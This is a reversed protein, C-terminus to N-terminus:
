EHPLIPGQYPRKNLHERLLDSGRSLVHEVVERYSADRKLLKLANKLNNFVSRAGPSNAPFPALLCSVVSAALRLTRLEPRTLEHLSKGRLVGASFNTDEFLRMAMETLGANVCRREAMFAEAQEPILCLDDLAARITEMTLRPATPPTDPLSLTDPNPPAYSYATLPVMPLENRPSEPLAALEGMHEGTLTDVVYPLREVPNASALDGPMLRGLATPDQYPGPTETMRYVTVGRLPSADWWEPATDPIRVGCLLLADTGQKACELHVENLVRKLEALPQTPTFSELGAPKYGDEAGYRRNHLYVQGNSVYPLSGPYSRLVDLFQLAHKVEPAALFPLSTLPVRRMTGVAAAPRPVYDARRLEVPEAFDMPDAAAHAPLELQLAYGDQVDFLSLSHLEPHKGLVTELNQLAAYVPDAGAATGPLVHDRSFPLLYEHLSHREVPSYLQWGRTPSQLLNWYEQSAHHLPAEGSRRFSWTQEENQARDMGFAGNILRQVHADPLPAQAVFSRVENIQPSMERLQQAMDRNSWGVIRSKAPGQSLFYKHRIKQEPCFAAYNFWQKVSEPFDSEPLKVLFLTQTFNSMARATETQVLEHTSGEPLAHVDKAWNPGVADLFDVLRQTSVAGSRLMRKWYVFFREAAMRIPTSPAILDMDRAAEGARRYFSSEATGEWAHAGSATRTPLFGPQLYPASEVWRAGLEHMAVSCLYDYATYDPASPAALQSLDAVGEAAQAGWHQYVNEGMRLFSIDANAAVDNMAYEPSEHWRSFRGDPRRLRWYTVGDDGTESELRTGTLQMYAECRQANSQTYSEMPTINVHSDADSLPYNKVTAPDYGLEREAMFAYAQPLSMGRSLATQFDDTQPLLEILLEANTRTGLYIRYAEHLEPIDPLEKPDNTKARHAMRSLYNTPVNKIWAVKIGKLRSKKYIYYNQFQKSLQTMNEEMPVGMGARVLASGVMGLYANRTREGNSRMREIDISQLILSDFPNVNMLLQYSLDQIEAVRDRMLAVREQEAYPAFTGDRLMREPVLGAPNNLEKLYRHSREYCASDAGCVRQWEGLLVASSNSGIHSRTWWEDWLTLAERYRKSRQEGSYGSRAVANGPSQEIAALTREGYDQRQVLSSEAPLRLFDRVVEVNEFGRFYDTNLLRMARMARPMFDLGSYVTSGMIAEQLLAGRVDINPTSLIEAVKEPAIGLQLLPSGDGTITEPHRFHRLAVRGSGILLFPLLSAADHLNTEAELQSEGWERWDIHSPVGAAASALEHLALDAAAGAKVALMMGAGDVVTHAATNFAAWSFLGGARGSSKMFNNVSRELMKGGLKSLLSFITAQIVGSTMGAVLHNDLPTEPSRARAAATSQGMSSGVIALLGPWGCCSLAATPLAEGSEIFFNEAASLKDDTLPIVQQETLNLIEHFTQSRKDMARTEDKLAGIDFADAINAITAIRVYNLATAVGVSLRKTGRRTARGLRLLFSEENNARRKKDLMNVALYYIVKKHEPRIRSLANVSKYFAPFTRAMTYINLPDAEHTAVFEIAQSLQTAVPLWRERLKRGESQAGAAVMDAASQMGQLLGVKVDDISFSEGHLGATFARNYITNAINRMAAEDYQNSLAFFIEEENDSVKLEAALERRLDPWSSRVKEKSLKKHEVLWSRNVASYIRYDREEPTLGPELAGAAQRIMDPVTDADGTLVERWYLDIKEQETPEAQPAAAPLKAPQLPAPKEAPATPALAPPVPPAAVEAAPTAHEAPPPEPQPPEPVQPDAVPPTPEPLAPPPAEETPPTSLPAATAPEAEPLVMGPPPQPLAIEENLTNPETNMM